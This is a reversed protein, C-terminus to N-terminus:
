PAPSVTARRAPPGRLRVVSALVPAFTARRRQRAVYGLLAAGIATVAALVAFGALHPLASQPAPVAVVALRAGATAESFAFAPGPAHPSAPAGVDAAGFAVFTAVALAALARRM